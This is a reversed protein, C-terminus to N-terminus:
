VGKGKYIINWLVRRSLEQNEEEIMLVINKKFYKKKYGDTACCRQHSVRVLCIIGHSPTAIELVGFCSFM